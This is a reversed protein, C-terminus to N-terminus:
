TDIRSKLTECTKKFCRVTKRSESEQWYHSNTKKEVANLNGPTCKGRRVEGSGGKLHHHPKQKEDPFGGGKEM